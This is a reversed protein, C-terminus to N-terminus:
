GNGDAASRCKAAFAKTGCWVRKAAKGSDRVEVYFDAFRERYAAFQVPPVRCRKIFELEPEWADGLDKLGREIAQPIILSKDYAQRFAALDRGVTAKTSSM